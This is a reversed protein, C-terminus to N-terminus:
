ISFYENDICARLLVILGTMDRARYVQRYISKEICRGVLVQDCRWAPQAVQEAANPDFAFRLQHKIIIASQLIGRTNEPYKLNVAM